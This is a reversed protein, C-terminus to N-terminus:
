ALQPPRPVIPLLVRLATLAVCIAARVVQPDEIRQMSEENKKM